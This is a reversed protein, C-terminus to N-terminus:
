TDDKRRYAICNGLREAQFKKTLGIISESHGLFLLGGRRVVRAFNDIARKLAGETFYILVNRCFVADYPQVAFTSPDLINGPAFHVGTRFPSKLEFNEDDHCVFLRNIQAEDLTRLSGPRYMALRAQELRESDLDVADIRLEDARLGHGCDRL